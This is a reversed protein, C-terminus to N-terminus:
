QWDKLEKLYIIVRDQISFCFYRLASIFSIFDVHNVGPSDIYRLFMDEIAIKGDIDFRYNTHELQKLIEWYSHDLMAHGKECTATNTFCILMLYNELSSDPVAIEKIENLLMEHLNQHSIDSKHETTKDISDYTVKDGDMQQITVQIDCSPIREYCTEYTDSTVKNTNKSFFWNGIWLKQCLKTDRKQSLKTDCGDNWMEKRMAKYEDVHLTIATKNFKAL